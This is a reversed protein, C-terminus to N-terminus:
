VNSPAGRPVFLQASNDSIRMFVPGRRRPANLLGRCRQDV